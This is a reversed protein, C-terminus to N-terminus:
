GETDIKLFHIHMNTAFFTDLTVVQVEMSYRGESNNQNGLSGAEYHYHETDSERFDNFYFREHGKKNSVAYPYVEVNKARTTINRLKKLNFPNPEFLFLRLIFSVISAV